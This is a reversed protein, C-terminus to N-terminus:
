KETVYIMPLMRNEDTTCYARSIMSKEIVERNRVGDAM